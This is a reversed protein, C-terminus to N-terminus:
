KESLNYIHVAVAKITAADLTAGWPPCTEERGNAIVDRLTDRDNGFLSIEDTLNPGGFAPDGEGFQGHCETCVAFDAEARGAAEADAEAEGGSLQLVYEVLDGIQAETLVQTKLYGPMQSFRTASCAGYSQQEPPCDKNRVGYLLTRQISMVAGAASYDTASGWLWDSDLLDPVGPAGRLEAGHCRACHGAIAAKATTTVFDTLGPDAAIAEPSANLVRVTPDTDAALISQSFLCALPLCAFLFGAHFTTYLQKM